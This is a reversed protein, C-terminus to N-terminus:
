RCRIPSNPPRANVGKIVQLEKKKDAPEVPWVMAPTINLAPDSFIPNIRKRNM